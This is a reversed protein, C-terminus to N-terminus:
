SPEATKVKSHFYVYFYIISGMVESLLPVYASDISRLRSIYEDSLENERAGTILIKLYRRSPRYDGQDPGVLTVAQVTRGDSTELDVTVQLYDDPESQIIREYAEPELTYVVGEVTGNAAPAINAFGPEIWNPGRLSFTLEYGKLRAAQKDLPHVGRINTLYATSMNSGYAFYKKDAEEIRQEEAPVYIDNMLVTDVGHYVAIFAAPPLVIWAALRKYLKRMTEAKKTIWSCRRKIFLHIAM